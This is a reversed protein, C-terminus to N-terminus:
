RGRRVAGEWQAQSRLRYGVGPVSVIYEPYEPRGADEGLKQRVRYVCSTVLHRDGLEPSCEWVEELLEEHTATRGVNRALYAMLRFEMPSLDVPRGRLAVRWAALDIVLEGVTVVDHPPALLEQVQDLLTDQTFPAQIVRVEHDTDLAPVIVLVPAEISQELQRCAALSMGPALADLVVLPAGGAESRLQVADAARNVPYGKEVLVDVIGQSLPGELVLIRGNDSM